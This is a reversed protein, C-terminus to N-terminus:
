SRLRYLIPLHLLLLTLLNTSLRGKLRIVQLLTMPIQMLQSMLWRLCTCRLPVQPLMGMTPIVQTMEKRLSLTKHLWFQQQVPQSTGKLYIMVVVRHPFYKMYHDEGCIMCPSKPKRTPQTDVSKPNDQENSSKKSKGKHKKKGGLQQSSTSQVMNVESIQAPAFTTTTNPVSNSEPAPRSPDNSPRPANPILDYLTGSQSYVLDLYQAHNIAKEETVVNGMAVDRTIPPLLSKTFWDTLLQDLIPAKIL